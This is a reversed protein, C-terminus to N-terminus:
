DSFNKIVKKFVPLPNIKRRTVGRSNWAAKIGMVNIWIPCLDCNIVKSFDRFEVIWQVFRIMLVNRIDNHSPERGPLGDTARICILKVICPIIYYEYWSIEPNLFGHSCGQVSRWSSRKLLFPDRIQVLGMQARACKHHIVDPSWIDRPSMLNILIIKKKKKKLRGIM